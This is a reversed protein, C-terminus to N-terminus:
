KIIIRIKHILFEGRTNYETQREGIELSHEGARSLASRDPRWSENEGDESQESEHEYGINM